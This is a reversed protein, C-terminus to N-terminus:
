NKILVQGFNCLRMDNDTETDIEDTQWHVGTITEPTDWFAEENGHKCDTVPTTITETDEQYSGKNENEPDKNLVTDTETTEQYLMKYENEPDVNLATATETAEQYSVENENESDTSLTTVTLTTKWYSVENGNKPDTNLITAEEPQLETSKKEKSKSSETISIDEHSGVTDIGRETELTVYDRNYTNM